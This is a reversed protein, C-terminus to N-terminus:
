LCTGVSDNQADVPPFRMFFVHGVRHAYHFLSNVANFILFHHNKYGDYDDDDDHESYMIKLLTKLM